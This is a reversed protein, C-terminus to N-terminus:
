LEKFIIGNDKANFHLVFQCYASLLPPPFYRPSFPFFDYIFMYLPGM